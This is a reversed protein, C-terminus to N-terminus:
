INRFQRFRKPNNTEPKPFNTIPENHSDNPNSDPSDKKSSKDDPDLISDMTKGTEKDVKQEIKREITREARKKLKKLLQANTNPACFLIAIVFVIGKILKATSKM